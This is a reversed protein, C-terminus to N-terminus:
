RQDIDDRLRPSFATHPSRGIGLRLLHSYILRGATATQNLEGPPTITDTPRQTTQCTCPVNYMPCGLMQCQESCAQAEWFYRIEPHGMYSILHVQGVVLDRMSSSVLHDNQKRRNM